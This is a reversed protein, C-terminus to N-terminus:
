RLLGERALFSRAVARPEERDFEVLRNLETLEATSLAASLRDLAAVVARTAASSRIAPVIRDVNQLRRDDALVVLDEEAVGADSSFVVGVDITGDVLAQRTLPGGADLPTFAGVSMGYVRELGLQCFPRVPCEEPGGLRLQNAASWQALQSLTSIGTATAFARTVAFANVNEAPAPKLLRLGEPKALARGARLTGAVSSSAVTPADTGNERRNLYETFTGLYEPVVDVRGAILAPALRERNTSQRVTAKIGAARLAGAYLEALVRSETVDFAGVVVSQARASPTAPQEAVAAPAAAVIGAGLGGVVLATGLGAVVVKRLFSM